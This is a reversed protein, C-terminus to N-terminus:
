ENTLSVSDDDNVRVCVTAEITAGTVDCDKYRYDVKIYFWPETNCEVSVSDVAMIKPDTCYGTELMLDTLAGLKGEGMLLRTVDVFKPNVM